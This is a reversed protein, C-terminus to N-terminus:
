SAREYPEGLKSNNLQRIIREKVNQFYIPDVQFGKIESFIRKYYAEFGQNYGHFSFGFSGVM